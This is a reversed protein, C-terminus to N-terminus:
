KSLAAFTFAIVHVLYSTTLIRFVTIDELNRRNANTLKSEILKNLDKDPLLSKETQTEITKQAVQLALNKTLKQTENSKNNNKEEEKKINTQDAVEESSILNNFTQSIIFSTRISDRNYNNHFGSTIVELKM